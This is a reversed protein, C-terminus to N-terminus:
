KGKAASLKASLEVIKLEAELTRVRAEADRARLESAEAMHKLRMMPNTPSARQEDVNVDAM